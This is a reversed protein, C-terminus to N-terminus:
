VGNIIFLWAFAFHFSMGEALRHPVNLTKYFGKPFFHFFEKNAIAIKYPDYAWYILLGSWIMIALVPFNIWHFWRIALPHKKLVTKMCFLYSLFSQHTYSLHCVLAVFVCLINLYLLERRRRAKM